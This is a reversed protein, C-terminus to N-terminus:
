ICICIISACPVGGDNKTQSATLRYAQGWFPNRLDTNVKEIDASKIMRDTIAENKEEEGVERRANIGLNTLFEM